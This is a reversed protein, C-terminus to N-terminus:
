SAALTIPLAPYQIYKVGAEVELRFNVTQGEVTAGITVDTVGFTKHVYTARAATTSPVLVRFELSVQMMTTYAYSTTGVSGASSTHYCGIRNTPFKMGIANDQSFYLDIYDSEFLLRPEGTTDPGYVEYTRIVPSSECHACFETHYYKATINYSDDFVGGFAIAFTDTLRMTPFVLWEATAKIVYPTDDGVKTGVGCTTTIRMDDNEWVAAPMISSNSNVLNNSALMSDTLESMKIIQVTKRVEVFDLVELKKSDTCDEYFLGTYTIIFEALMLDSLDPFNDRAVEQFVMLNSYVTEGDVYEVLIYESAIEDLTTPTEVAVGLMPMQLVFFLAMICAIIKKM